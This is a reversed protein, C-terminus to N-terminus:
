RRWGSPSRQLVGPILGIKDAPTLPDAVALDNAHSESFASRGWILGACISRRSCHQLIRPHPRRRRPLMRLRLSRHIPRLEPLTALTEMAIKHAALRPLIEMRRNGTARFWGRRISKAPADFSTVDSAPVDLSSLDAPLPAEPRAAGCTGCFSENEDFFLHRLRSLNGCCTRIDRHPPRCAALGGSISTTELREIQPKIRELAELM